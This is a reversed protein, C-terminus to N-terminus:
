RIETALQCSPCYSFGPEQTVPGADLKSVPTGCTHCPRRVRGFVAFEEGGAGRESGPRGGVISARMLGRARDLLAVLREQGLTDVPTLPHIGEGFLSEAAWMTGIGACNRQDLLAPGIPGGSALLRRAAVTADWDAALLDPGLHGVLRAEDATRVLDLMGLSWGAARVSETALVARLRHGRPAPATAPGVRWSGDMRLHSHLTWRAGAPSVLRHLLHKGRPVVEVTRWGVLDATALSPWRLDSSTLDAGALARHLRHATRWVADGEPM